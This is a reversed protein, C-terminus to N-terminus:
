KRANRKFIHHANAWDYYKKGLMVLAGIVGIILSAIFVYYLIKWLSININILDIVGAILPTFVSTVGKETELMTFEHLQYGSGCTTSNFGSENVEEGLCRVYVKMYENDRTPETWFSVSSSAPIEVEKFIAQLNDNSDKYVVQFVFPIPLPNNNYTVYLQGSNTNFNKGNTVEFTLNTFTLYLFNNVKSYTKENLATFETTDHIDDILIASFGGSLLLLFVLFSSFILKMINNNKKNNINKEM